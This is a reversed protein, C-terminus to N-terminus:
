RKHRLRAFGLLGLGAGLFLVSAPLPAHAPAMTDLELGSIRVAVTDNRAGQYAMDYTLEGLGPLICSQFGCAEIAYMLDSPVGNAMLTARQEGDTPSTGDAAVTLSVLDSFDSMAGPAFSASGAGFGNPGASATAAGGSVTSGDSKVGNLSLSDRILSGSFGQQDNFNLTGDPRFFTLNTDIVYGELTFDSSLDMLSFAGGSGHTITMQAGHGACGGLAGCDSLLRFADFDAAVPANPTGFADVYDWAVDFGDESWVGSAYQGSDDLSGSTNHGNTFDIQVPAASAAGAAVIMAASLAQLRTLM